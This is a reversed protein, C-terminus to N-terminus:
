KIKIKEKIKPIEIKLDWYLPAIKYSDKKNIINEKILNPIDNKLAEFNEYVDGVMEFKNETEKLLVVKTKKVTKM